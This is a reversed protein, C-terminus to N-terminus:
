YLLKREFHSLRIFYTKWNNGDGWLNRQVTEYRAQAIYAYQM